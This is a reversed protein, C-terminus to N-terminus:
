GCIGTKKLEESKPKEILSRVLASYYDGIKPWSFNEEAMKWSRLGMQVLTKKSTSAAQEMTHALDQVNSPGVRIWM